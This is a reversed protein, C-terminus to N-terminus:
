GQYDALYALEDSLQDVTMSDFGDIDVTADAGMNKCVQAVVNRAVLTRYVDDVIAAYQGSGLVADIATELTDGAEVRDLIRRSIAANKEEPTM